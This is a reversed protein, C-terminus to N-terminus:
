VSDFFRRHRGHLDRGARALLGDTHILQCLGHAGDFMRCRLHDRARHLDFGADLSQALDIVIHVLEQRIQLQLTMLSEISVSRSFIKRSSTPSYRSVRFVSSICISVAAAASESDSRSSLRTACLMFPADRATPRLTISVM